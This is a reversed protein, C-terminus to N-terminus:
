QTPGAYTVSLKREGAEENMAVALNTEDQNCTLMVTKAGGMEFASREVTCGTKELEGTYWSELDELSPQVNEANITGQSQGGSVSSLGGVFTVDPHQPVWAPADTNGGIRVEGGDSSTIRVGDEGSEAKYTTENGESDTVKVGGSSAGVEVKEGDPGEFSFNGNAIDSYDFTREEGTSKERITIRGADKDSSVLDFDPHAKIVFEAATAPDSAVEVAKKAGWGLLMFGAVVVLLTLCGCGIGIKAWMPLGQGGGSPGGGPPNPNYSQAPAAGPPPPPPAAQNSM